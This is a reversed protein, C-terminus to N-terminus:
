KLNAVWRDKFYKKMQPQKQLLHILDMDDDINKLYKKIYKIMNPNETLIASLWGGSIDGFNIKKAIEPYLKLFKPLQSEYESNFVYGSFLKEKLNPQEKLIDIINYPSLSKLNFQDILQPHKILINAIHYGFGIKKLDFVNAFQPLELIISQIEDPSISDIDVYKILEPNYKIMPAANNQIIKSDILKNDLAYPIIEYKNLGKEYSDQDEVINRFHYYTKILEKQPKDM